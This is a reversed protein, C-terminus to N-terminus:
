GGADPDFHRLPENVRYHACGAAILLTTAIVALIRALRPLWDRNAISSRRTKHNEIM